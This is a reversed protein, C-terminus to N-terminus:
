FIMKIFYMLVRKEKAMFLLAAGNHMLGKIFMNHCLHLVPYETGVKDKEFAGKINLPCAPKDPQSFDHGTWSLPLREEDISNCHKNLIIPNLMWVVPCIEDSNKVTNMEYVAFFLAILAGDTWDLLRTPLRSHQMLFLWEDIREYPPTKSFAPARIRFRQVLANENPGKYRINGKDKPLSITYNKTILHTLM